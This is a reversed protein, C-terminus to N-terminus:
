KGPTLTITWLCHTGPAPTSSLVDATVQIQYSTGAAVGLLNMEGSSASGIGNNAIIGFYTDGNFLPQANGAAQQAPIQLDANFDCQTSATWDVLIAGAPLAFTATTESAPGSLTVTGPVPTASPSQASTSPTATQTGMSPSQCGAILAATVSLIGVAGRRLM